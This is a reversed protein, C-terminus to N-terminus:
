LPEEVVAQGMTGVKSKGPAAPRYVMALRDLLLAKEEPGLALRWTMISFTVLAILLSLSRVAICLPLAAVAFVLMSLGLPWALRRTPASIGPLVRQAVAFFLFLDLAVRGTWALAAGEIGRRIILHWAALLYPPLEILHLKAVLDPRGVGQMLASPVQALANLFVGIALWRLVATSQRAFDPGLWLALGEPALAVFALTIPFMIIFIYNITKIFILETRGHDCAFSTAFAPFVVGLVAGSILWGRTVLEFPTTYYAVAATSILAGILFRDMQVMIPNVINTLTMWGGFSLLPRVLDSRVAVGRRLGPVAGLCLRLHIAWSALRGVVLIAVVPGLSRTFPLVLLPGVLTFLGVGTRVLNILGVRQYAEMVGRLGATSIVFPLSAALLYFVILSEGQLLGPIQLVGRVLWPAILLVLAALALGLAMMLGLATWVLDPIDGELGLGLQEAVLKTLARGLGFDFLSFYGLVMWALTLVGFRDTGLGRILVPITMVAVALPAVQGLLNWIANRGLLRGHTLVTAAEGRGPPHDPHAVL